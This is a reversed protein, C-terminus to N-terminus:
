GERERDKDRKERDKDRKERNREREVISCNHIFKLSLKVVSM